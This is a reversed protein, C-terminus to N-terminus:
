RGPLSQSQEEAAELVAAATKAFVEEVAGEVVEEAAISGGEAIHVTTGAPTGVWRWGTGAVSEFM